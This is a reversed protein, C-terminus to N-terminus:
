SATGAGSVATFRPIRPLVAPVGPYVRRHADHNYRYFNSGAATLTHLTAGTLATEAEGAPISGAPVPEVLGRQTLRSLASTFDTSVWVAQPSSRFLEALVAWDQQPLLGSLTRALRDWASNQRRSLTNRHRRLTYDDEEAIGYWAAVAAASVVQEAAKRILRLENILAPRVADIPYGLGRAIATLRPDGRRLEIDGAPTAAAETLDVLSRRGLRQRTAAPRGSLASIVDWRDVGFAQACADILAQDNRQDRLGDHEFRRYTNRSMGLADAAQQATLGAAARLNALSPQQASSGMLTLAPVKLAEALDRLRAPEPVQGNEYASIQRIGCGVAKALEARTMNCERRAEQLASPDFSGAGRM